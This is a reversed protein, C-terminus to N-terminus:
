LSRIMAMMYIMAGSMVLNMAFSIILMMKMTAQGSEASDLLNDSSSDNPLQKQVSTVLTWWYEHLSRQLEPSYFNGPEKVHFILQDKESFPSITLPSFFMIQITLDTDVFSTVNWTFNLTHM